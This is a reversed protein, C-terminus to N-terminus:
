CAELRRIACFRGAETFTLRFRGHVGDRTVVRRLAEAPFAVRRGDLSRTQVQTVQGTYHALCAEYSLEIVVDISPM